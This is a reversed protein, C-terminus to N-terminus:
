GALQILRSVVDAFLASAGAVTGLLLFGLANTAIEHRYVAWGGAAALTVGNRRILSRTLVAGLGIACAILLLELILYASSM